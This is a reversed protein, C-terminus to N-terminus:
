GIKGCAFRGNKADLSWSEWCDDEFYNYCGYARGEEDLEPPHLLYIQHGFMSTPEAILMGGARLLKLAGQAFEERREEPIDMEGLFYSFTGM